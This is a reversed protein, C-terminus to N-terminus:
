PLMSGATLWETDWPMVLTDAVEALTVKDLQAETLKLTEIEPRDAYERALVPAFLVGDRARQVNKEFDALADDLSHELLYERQQALRTEDLAFDGNRIRLPGGLIYDGEDFITVTADPLRTSVWRLFTVGLCANWEDSAVKTFGWGIRPPSPNKRKSVIVSRERPDPAEPEAFLELSLNECTWTFHHNLMSQALLIERETEYPLSRDYLVQYHLTRGM